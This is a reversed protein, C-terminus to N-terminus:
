TERITCAAVCAYKHPISSRASLHCLLQSFVLTLSCYQEYSQRVVVNNMGNIM